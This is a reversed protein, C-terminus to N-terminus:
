QEFRMVGADLRLKLVLAGDEIAYDGVSNLDKLYERDLSEPACAAKTLLKIDLSLSGDSAHYTGAGRNCDVQLALTGNEKFELTYQAPDEPEIRSEDHLVTGQWKWTVGCLDSLVQAQREGFVARSLANNARGRVYCVREGGHCSADQELSFEEGSAAATKLAKALRDAADKDIYAATLKVNPGNKDYCVGDRRNAVVGKDVAVLEGFLQQQGCEEYLQRGSLIVRFVKLADGNISGGLEVYFPTKAALGLRNRRASLDDLVSRSASLRYTTASGCPRFQWSQGDFRCQGSVTEGGHEVIAVPSVCGSLIALCFLMVSFIAKRM